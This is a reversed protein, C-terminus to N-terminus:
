AGVEGVGMELAGLGQEGDAVEPPTEGFVFPPPLARLRRRAGKALGRPVIPVGGALVDQEIRFLAGSVGDLKDTVRGKDGPLPGRDGHGAVFIQQLHKRSALPDRPHNGQEVFRRVEIAMRRQHAQGATEARGQFRDGVPNGVDRNRRGGAQRGQLVTPGRHVDADHPRAVGPLGVIVVAGARDPQQRAQRPDVARREEAQLHPFLRVVQGAHGGARPDHIQARM